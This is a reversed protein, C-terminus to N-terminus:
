KIQVQLLFAVSYAFAEAPSISKNAFEGLEILIKDLAPRCTAKSPRDSPKFAL